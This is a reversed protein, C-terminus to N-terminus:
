SMFDSKKYRIWVYFLFCHLLLALLYFVQCENQKNILENLVTIEVAYTICCCVPLHIHIILPFFILNSKNKAVLISWFAFVFFDSMNTWLWVLLQCPVDWVGLFPMLCDCKVPLEVLAPCSSFLILLSSTAEQCSSWLECFETMEDLFNHTCVFLFVCGSTFDNDIFFIISFIWQNQTFFASVEHSWGCWM